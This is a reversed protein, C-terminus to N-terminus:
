LSGVQRENCLREIEDAGRFGLSHRHAGGFQTIPGNIHDRETCPFRAEIRWGRDAFSTDLCDAIPPRFVRRDGADLPQALRDALVETAIM